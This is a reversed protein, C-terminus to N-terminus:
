NGSKLVNVASASVQGASASVAQGSSASVRSPAAAVAALEEVPAPTPHYAYVFDKFESHLFDAGFKYQKMEAFAKDATWHDQSLRFAATMVGTRHRGGVCHVFVPQSAPDNAIKLFAAVKDASPSEHTTMPIQVYKMGAGETMSKENAEADDSTLNIITKVGLSALDAYDKGKPQGGRYYNANVSGFNDIGISALNAAVAPTADGNAAKAAAPVSLVL